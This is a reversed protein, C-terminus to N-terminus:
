IIKQITAAAWLHLSVQIYLYLVFSLIGPLSLTINTPQMGYNSSKYLIQDCELQIHSQCHARM